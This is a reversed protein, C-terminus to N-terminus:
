KNGHKVKANRKSTKGHGARTLGEDYVRLSGGAIHGDMLMGNLADVGGKSGEAIFKQIARDRAKKDFGCGGARLMARAYDLPVRLAIALAIIGDKPPIVVKGDAPRAFYHKVNKPNMRAAYALSAQSTVLDLGHGDDTKDKQQLEKLEKKDHEKVRLYLANLLEQFDKGDTDLDYRLQRFYPEEDMSVQEGCNPGDAYRSKKFIDRYKKEEEKTFKSVTLGPYNRKACEYFEYDIGVLKVKMDPFAGLFLTIADIAVKLARPMINTKGFKGSSLVPVSVTKCKEKAALCLIQLYCGM